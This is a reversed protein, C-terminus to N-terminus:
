NKEKAILAKIEAPPELETADIAPNFQIELVKSLIKQPGMSQITQHPLLFQDVKRYDSVQIEIPLEGAPSVMTMKTKVVLGTDKSFWSIETKGGDKPKAEVRFCPTGDISEESTTTVSTYYDRWNAAARIDNIRLSLNREEGKALRQGQIASSEWVIGDWIGSQIKGLGALEMTSVARRPHISRTTSTGKIGQGLFEVEARVAQSKLAAYASSGGTSKVFGDMLSEASPLDAAAAFTTLLLLSFLTKTHMQTLGKPDM